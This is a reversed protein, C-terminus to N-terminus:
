IVSQDILSDFSHMVQELGNPFSKEMISNRQSYRNNIESWLNDDDKIERQTFYEYSTPDLNLFKMTKTFVKHSTHRKNTKNIDKLFKVLERTTMARIAGLEMQSLGELQPIITSNISNDLVEDLGTSMKRGTLLNQIIIQLIATGLKKFERVFALFNYAKYIADYIDSKSLAELTKTKHNLKLDSFDEVDLSRLANKTAYYIEQTYQDKDPIDIEIFAFRSKLASSLPFLYHKDATNLTGIIRFDKPIKIIEFTSEPQDTPIKMERTRLATFLQGFAKDIDARNFEDIIAWVGRYNHGNLTTSKRLDGYWNKKVSETVCGDQIKYHVKDDKMKPVIGGIVDQTNWDATATYIDSYYGGESSWFVEPIMRALETKGTGIPGALIVHSGSSLAILIETIKKDPILLHSKIKEFGKQIDVQSLSPIQEDDFTKEPLEQSIQKENIIEEYVEKTIPLISFRNNFNPVSRIKERISQDGQKPVISDASPSGNSPPNFFSFSDYIAYQHEDSKKELNSIDGYGWFNYDSSDTDFWITKAGIALKKHNQVTPGYHYKEGLIDGWQNETPNYRLLFYKTRYQMLNDFEQQSLQIVTIMWGEQRPITSENVDYWDVPFTHPHKLEPRYKYPGAVKGVGLIKSKGSNAVIIDGEKIIMFGRMQGFTNAQKAPTLEAGYAERIKERLEDESFTSLDGFDFFHIGIVGNQKQNEWYEGAEGPSVKWYNVTSEMKEYIKNYDDIPIPKGNNSPYGGAGKLVLNVLRKDEPKEFISLESAIDYVVVDGFALPLLHVQSLYIVSDSEDHWVPEPADYWDGDFEFIGKFQGTGLVYFIVIDGSVVKDRIKEGIKSAWINKEKVIEWNEPTVSWIWCNLENKGEFKEIRKNCWHVLEKIKESSLKDFSNLTYLDDDEKRILPHKEDQLVKLVTDTMSQSESDPNYKKLEDEIEKRTLGNCQLLKRLVVPQYNEQMIMEDRIYTLLEEYNKAGLAKWWVWDMQWLTLDHQQAINLIIKQVEPYREWIVTSTLKAVHLKDLADKVTQNYVPYKDPHTVLLIPSFYAEGLFKQFDPNKDDRLRKLRNGIPISEDLLIKLSKKLKVMDQTLNTKHRSITWHHNNKFDLFDQFEETTINDINEYRFLSGYKKITNKELELKEPHDKLEQKLVSVATDLDMGSLTASTM